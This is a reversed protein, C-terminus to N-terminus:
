KKYEVVYKKTRMPVTKGNMDKHTICWASEALEVLIKPMEVFIDLPVRRGIEGNNFYADTATSAERKDVMTIKVVIEEANLREQERIVKLAEARNNAKVAKFEDKTLDEGEPKTVEIKASGAEADYYGDIKEQLKVAGINKSYEIGLADAELRLDEITKEMELEKQEPEKSKDDQM